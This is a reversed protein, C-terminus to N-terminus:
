VPRKRLHRRGEDPFPPPLPPLVSDLRSSGDTPDTEVLPELPKRAGNKRDAREPVM